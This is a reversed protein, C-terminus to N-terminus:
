GPRPWGGPLGPRGTTTRSRGADANVGSPADHGDPGREPYTVTQTSIVSAVRWAMGPMRSGVQSPRWSVSGSWGPGAHSKLLGGLVSGVAGDVRLGPVEAAFSLRLALCIGDM